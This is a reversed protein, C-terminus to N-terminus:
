NIDCILGYGCYPNCKENMDFSIESQSIEELEKLTNNFDEVTRRNKILEGTSLNYYFLHDISVNEGREKLLTYYFLLQFDTESKGERFYNSYTTPNGLKYDILILEGNPLRDVRDVKGTLRFGMYETTINQELAYVEAGAQFRGIENDIFKNIRQGWSSIYIPPVRDKFNALEDRFARYLEDRNRFSKQKSYIRHLVTHLTNGLLLEMSEKVVHEKINLINSLYYARPCEYFTRMKHNSLPKTRFNHLAVISSNESSWHSFEDGYPLAIKILEREYDSNYRSEKFDFDHFFRSIKTTESDVYSVAIHSAKQFLRQLYLKQLAERDELLPLQVARRIDSNIFFDKEEQKPFVEDNFDLVIVARYDAGRTELLGQVTVKGGKTDDITLERLEKLFLTFLTRINLNQLNGGRFLNLTNIVKKILSNSANFEKLTLITNQQFLELGSKYWYTSFFEYIKQLNESDGIVRNKRARNEKSSRNEIYLYIGNLFKFLKSEEISDGMSFNLNRKGDRRDFVKLTKAFKEDLLIVGIEDLAIGLKEHFHYIREKVFGIEAFRSKFGHIHVNESIGVRNEELIEGKGFDILYDCNQKLEMNLQADLKYNFKSRVFRFYVPIYQSVKRFIDIQFNSLRGDFRYEIRDISKIYPINLQYDLPLFIDDIYKLDLMKERYRNYITQLIEIHKQYDEYYDAEKLEDISIGEKSLEGFFSFFYRSYSLFNFINTDINFVRQGEIDKVVSNFIVERELRNINKFEPIYIAKENFNSISILSEVRGSKKLFRKTYNRIARNNNFIIM